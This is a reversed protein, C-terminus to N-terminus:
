RLPVEVTPAAWNTCAPRRSSKRGPPPANSAPAVALEVDMLREGALGLRMAQALAM